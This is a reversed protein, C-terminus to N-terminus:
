IERSSLADKIDKRLRKVSNKSVMNLDISEDIWKLATSLYTDNNFEKYLTLAFEGYKRAHYGKRKDSHYCQELIAM